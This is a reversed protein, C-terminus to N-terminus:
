EEIEICSLLRTVEEDTMPPADLRKKRNMLDKIEDIKHKIQRDLVLKEGEKGAPKLHKEPVCVEANGYFLRVQGKGLGATYSDRYGVFGKEVGKTVKFLAPM